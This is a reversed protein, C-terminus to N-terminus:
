PCHQEQTWAATVCRLGWLAGPCRERHWLPWNQWWAACSSLEDSKDARCVTRVSFFCFDKSPSDTEVSEEKSSSIKKHSFQFYLPGQTVCFSSVPSFVIKGPEWVQPPAKFFVWFGGQVLQILVELLHTHTGIHAYMYVRTCSHLHRFIHMCTHRHTHIYMYTHMCTNTHAYTHTLTCTHSYQRHRLAHVSDPNLVM